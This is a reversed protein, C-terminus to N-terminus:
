VIAGRYSSHTGMSNVDFVKQKSLNLLCRTAVDKDNTVKTM